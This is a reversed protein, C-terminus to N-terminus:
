SSKTDVELIETPKQNTSRTRQSTETQHLNKSQTNEFLRVKFNRIM